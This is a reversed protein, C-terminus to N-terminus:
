RRTSANSRSRFKRATRSLSIDKSCSLSLSIAISSAPFRASIVALNTKVIKGGATSNVSQHPQAPIRLPLKLAAIGPDEAGDDYTVAVKSFVAETFTFTEDTYNIGVSYPATSKITGGFMGSMKVNTDIYINPEPAAAAPLEGVTAFSVTDCKYSFLM